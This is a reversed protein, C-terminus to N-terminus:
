QSMFQHRDGTKKDGTKKIGRLQQEDLYTRRGQEYSRLFRSNLPFQFLQAIIALLLSALPFTLKGGLMAVVLCFLGAGECVALIIITLTSYRGSAETISEASGLISATKTRVVLSIILVIGAYVGSIIRLISYLETDTEVFTRSHRVFLVVALFTVQGTFLAAFIIQLTLVCSREVDKTIQIDEKQKM